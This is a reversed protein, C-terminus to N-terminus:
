KPAIPMLPNNSKVFARTFLQELELRVASKLVRSTPSLFQARSFAARLRVVLTASQFAREYDKSVEYIQRRITNRSVATKAWRKPVMAGIKSVGVEAESQKQRSNVTSERLSEAGEERMVVMFHLAFHDTVVVARDALVAQFQSHTKLRRVSHEQWM